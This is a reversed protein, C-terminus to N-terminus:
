GKQPLAEQIKLFVQHLEQHSRKLSLLKGERDLFCHKTEGLARIEKTKQDLVQYTMVLTIGNYTKVEMYIEVTDGFHTMSKYVGHAELVPILVGAAEMKEYGMGARELLDTRAEEFWRIYNSHHVIGMQDTEYYQVKHCYPETELRKM